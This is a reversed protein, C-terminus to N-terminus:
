RPTDHAGPAAPLARGLAFSSVYHWPTNPAQEALWIADVAVRAAFCEAQNADCFARLEQESLALGLTVHPSYSSDSEPRAYQAATLPQLFLGVRRWLRHLGPSSVVRLYVTNEPGAFVGLGSIGITLPGVAACVAALGQLAEPQVTPQLFFPGALTIHYGIAPKTTGSQHLFRDEIVVETERPLRILLLYRTQDSRNDV